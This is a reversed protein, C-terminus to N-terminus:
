KSEHYYVVQPKAGHKKSIYRKKVLFDELESFEDDALGFKQKVISESFYKQGAIYTLITQLSFDENGNEDKKAVNDVPSDGSTSLEVFDAKQASEQESRMTTGDDNALLILDNDSIKLEAKLIGYYTARRKRQSIFYNRSVNQRKILRNHLDESISVKPAHVSDKSNQRVISAVGRKTAKQIVPKKVNKRETNQEKESRRRKYFAPGDYDKM